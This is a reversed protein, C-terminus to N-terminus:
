VNKVKRPKNLQNQKLTKYQKIHAKRNRTTSNVARILKRRLKSTLIQPHAQCEAVIGNAIRILTKTQM